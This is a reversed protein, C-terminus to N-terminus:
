LLRHSIDRMFSHISTVHTQTLVSFESAIPPIKSYSPKTETRCICTKAVFFFGIFSTALSLSPLLFTGEYKVRFKSSTKKQLAFFM